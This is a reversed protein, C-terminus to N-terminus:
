AGTASFDDDEDETRSSEHRSMTNLVGQERRRRIREKLAAVAANLHRLAIANEECALPGVQYDELRSAALEIVDEARCGNIGVEAPFGKQFIVAIFDTELLEGGTAAATRTIRTDVM